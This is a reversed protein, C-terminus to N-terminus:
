NHYVVKGDGNLYISYYWSDKGGRFAFTWVATDSGDTPGPSSYDINTLELNTCDLGSTRKADDQCAGRANHLAIVYADKVPLPKMTAEIVLAAVLPIGILVALVILAPKAIKRM